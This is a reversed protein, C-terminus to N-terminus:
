SNKIPDSTQGNMKTITISVEESYTQVKDKLFSLAVEEGLLMSYDTDSRWHIGAHIGHGFSINHALKHLEGNVTMVGGDAQTYTYPELHNGDRSPVMPNPIITSGEFFFKLVTICAGAVCGHGTPYAPHTPSGEPFAQSLFDSKNHKNSAALAKSTFVDADIATVAGKNQLYVLGGGAEPRHRLHIVWKQYWVADIAAKAVAALTGAIDPGGFTGFPKESKLIAYPSKSNPPINLTKMVLYAIFYAQYLEDEHTYTSLGRGNHLYRRNTKDLPFAIGTPKGAQILEWTTEDIMFDLGAPATYLKQDLEQVGFSTPRFCFQSLYPGALEGAFYQPRNSAPMPGTTAGANFGGRFLVRPTVHGNSDLPGAYTSKFKASDLEEAAHKATENTEYETFPVDRLLSAWYLEVLETGYEKSSLEPAAPVTTPGFQASDLCNLQFTFAGQPGNLQATGGLIGNPMNHLGPAFGAKNIAERFAKFATLNVFGQSDQILAKSYTGIKDARAEDGNPNQSPKPPATDQTALENRILTSHKIRAEANPDIPM